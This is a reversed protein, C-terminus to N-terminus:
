VERKRTCDTRIWGDNMVTRENEAIWAEMYEASDTAYRQGCKIWLRETVKKVPPLIEPIPGLYCWQLGNSANQMQDASHVDVYNCSSEKTLKYAWHGVRDPKCNEVWRLPQKPEDPKPEIYESVIDCPSQHHDLRELGNLRWSLQLGREDKAHVDTFVFEGHGYEKLPGVIVGNRLVYRKGVELKMAEGQAKKQLWM